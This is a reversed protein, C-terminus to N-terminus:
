LPDMVNPSVAPLNGPGVIEDRLDPHAPNRGQRLPTQGAIHDSPGLKRTVPLLISYLPSYSFWLALAMFTGFRIGIISIASHETHSARASGRTVVQYM